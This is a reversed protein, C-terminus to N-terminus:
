DYAVLDFSYAPTCVAWATCPQDGTVRERYATNAPIHLVDNTNLTYAQGAMEVVCWGEVVILLESFQNRRVAQDIGPPMFIRAISVASDATSVRGFAEWVTSGNANTFQAAPDYSRQIM